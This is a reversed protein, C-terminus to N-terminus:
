HGIPAGDAAFNRVKAAKGDRFLCTYTSREKSLPAFRVRAPADVLAASEISAGPHCAEIAARVTAPVEENKVHVVAHLLEGNATFLTECFRGSSHFDATYCVLLRGGVGDDMHATGITPSPKGPFSSRVRDGIARRVTETTEDDEPEQRSGSDSAQPGAAVDGGPTQAEPGAANQDGDDDAPADESESDPTDRL